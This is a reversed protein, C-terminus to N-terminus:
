NCDWMRTLSTGADFSAPDSVTGHIKGMTAQAALLLPTSFLVALAFRPGFNSMKMNMGEGNSCATM